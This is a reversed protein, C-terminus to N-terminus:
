QIFFGQHHNLNEKFDNTFINDILTASNETVRTPKTILPFLNYSYVLDIFESSKNHDNTKFLDINTDGMLYILKGEKNVKSLISELEKNFMEIDSNPTRYMCAIIVNKDRNYM